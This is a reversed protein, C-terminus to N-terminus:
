GNSVTFVNKFYTTQGRFSTVAIGSAFTTELEVVPIEVDGRLTTIKTRYVVGGVSHQVSAEGFQSDRVVTGVAAANLEEATAVSKIRIEYRKKEEDPILEAIVKYGVSVILTPLLPVMWGSQPCRAETCYLFVKTRWGNGDTEVGLEDIDSQVAAVLQEQKIALSERVDHPAGVINLAGWTLMCAVPNLDSAVVECGIRAAEFPIQGSGCFPDAVVPVRGFRM